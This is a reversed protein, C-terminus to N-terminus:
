WVGLKGSDGIDVKVGPYLADWRSEAAVLLGVTNM